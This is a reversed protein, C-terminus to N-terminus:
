DPLRDRQGKKRNFRYVFTLSIRRGIAKRESELRFNEGTVVVDRIRSDFINRVNLTIAGKDKLIDKSIAFDAFYQAKQLTQGNQNRGTYNFSAQMSLGKKFRMRSNIRTFWAEDKTDFNQGEFDGKQDYQFFNFEGSLRWWKFPNYTTALEFGIRDETDLNVPFTVFNGDATQNTVFNFFDTTHQYYVSPNISFKGWRKLFAAEFSNTYMPNLDPNGARLNRFDTLGGFPNLQWFAPRNIRRSYSLQLDTRDAVQYTFHATPFLNTYDKDDNFLRKEDDIGIDSHEVRLGLLYSFKGIKNGYQAYVGYIRENYDLENDLDPVLVDDIHVMYDSTIRRIETRIGTELRSTETLPSVFNAQFLFDKSSEVDDSNITTFDTTTPETRQQRIREQEDDNWFDYQVDMELKQGKKDFTKVYNMELRNFNQPEKYNEIRSITSDIAGNGDLYSYNLRTEDTNKLLTHYYSATLTNKENIYYDGGFFINHANDNRDQDNFQTLGTTIGSNTVVQRTTEEGFFNSNRYGVNTFLNIKDTKYTLNLNARFDRPDGATLQVSGSLGGKRNKKLIINIIGATGQAEYRASPNTIVEVKEITEGPIQDLGNNAVLASPKGNILIRVNGNGRLSIGGGADVSVSPVNDLIDNVTGGQTLLDKGVNFVKKDLKLEVTSKEAVIEVEGLAELDEELNITGLNLDKNVTVNKSEYSKFSIFEVKINYTGQAVDLSFNGKRNTIGGELVKNTKTDLITVTAYELVQQTTKDVVKGKVTYAKNQQGYALLCALYVFLIIIKKM